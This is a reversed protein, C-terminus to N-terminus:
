AFREALKSQRELVITCVGLDPLKNCLESPMVPTLTYMQTVEFQPEYYDFVRIFRPLSKVLVENKSPQFSIKIKVGESDIVDTNIYLVLVDDKMEMRSIKKTPEVYPSAGPPSEVELLSMSRVKLGESLSPCQYRLEFKRCFPRQLRSNM